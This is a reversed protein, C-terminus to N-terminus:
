TAKRFPLRLLNVLGLRDPAREDALGLVVNDHGLAPEWFYTRFARDWLSLVNGYNSDTEARVVSHHRRHMDPTCFLQRLTRDLRPPLAINGHTFLTAGNLLAEFILVVLPDVGLLAVLTSKYLLSLLIEIPHFRLGTTVDVDLDSHHVRHLRWLLPVKHTAVHQLYIAADLIVLAILGELWLPLDMLNFLGWDKQGVYIATAFAAAGLTVRQLIIDVLILGFNAQWRQKKDHHLKRRPWFLEGLGILAFLILFLSLRFAAEDM